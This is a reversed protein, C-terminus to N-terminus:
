GEARVGEESKSVPYLQLQLLWRAAMLIFALHWWSVCRTYRIKKPLQTYDQAKLKRVEQQM